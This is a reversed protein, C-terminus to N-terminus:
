KTELEDIRKQLQIMYLTMEEIKEVLKANLKGLDVGNEKVEKESPMGPLTGHKEIYEEIEALSKLPYSESFVYDPFDQLTVNIERAYLPGDIRATFADFYVCKIEPFDLTGMNSYIDLRQRPPASIYNCFINLNQDPTASLSNCYVGGKVTLNKNLDSTGINVNSTATILDVDDSEWREAQYCTPYPLCETGKVILVDEVGAEVLSAGAEDAAEILVYVTQGAFDNLSVSFTNWVAEDINAAGLEELVLQSTSGVVKVRLYDDSTANSYHAFYYSFSLTIEGDAPLTIDPSRVTTKGYDIDYSGPSTGALPGTCLGNVGSVTTGLQMPVSYISEEPNAREWMGTTADDTCLPNRVWGQSTEFDDFFIQETESFITSFTLFLIILSTSFIKAAKM